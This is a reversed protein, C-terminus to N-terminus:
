LVHFIAYLRGPIFLYFLFQPLFRILLKSNHAVARDYADVPAVLALAPHDVEDCAVIIDDAPILAAVVRAVGDDVFVAFKGQMEDGGADAQRADHVDEAVANHDIQLAEPALDLGQLLGADADRRFVELDGFARGDDERVM